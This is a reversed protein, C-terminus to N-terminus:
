WLYWYYSEDLQYNGYNNNIWERIKRRNKRTLFSSEASDNFKHLDEPRTHGIYNWFSPNTISCLYQFARVKVYLTDQSYGEIPNEEEVYEEVIDDFFIEDGEEDPITDLSIPPCYDHVIVRVEYKRSKTYEAILKIGDDCFYYGFIEDLSLYYEKSFKKKHIRVFFPFALSDRMKTRYKIMNYNETEDFQFKQHIARVKSINDKDYFNTCIMIIKWYGPKFDSSNVCDDLLETLREKMEVTFFSDRNITHEYTYVFLDCTIHSDIDYNNKNFDVLAQYLQEQLKEITQGKTQTVILCVLILLVLKMNNIM